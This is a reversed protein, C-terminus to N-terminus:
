FSLVFPRGTRRFYGVNVCETRGIRMRPQLPQHVHGYLLYRPQTRRVTDLIAESAMEFGRVVTDYRLEPIAPPIHCCLVDVAGVADLKEAYEEPSSDAGLQITLRSAPVPRAWGGVFGFTWGGLRVTQGDLAHQGDRLYEPWLAPIDVNGYTLYTPTPMAAFIEAYQRRAAETIAPAPDGVSTALEHGMSRIDGFRRDRRLEAFREAADAGFLDAFMGMSPEAYDVFLLLDGLIVLADAGDKAAALTDTRGHVDSIVHVRM